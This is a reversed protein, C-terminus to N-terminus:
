TYATFHGHSAQIEGSETWLRTMHYQDIRCSCQHLLVSAVPEGQQILLMWRTQALGAIKRLM